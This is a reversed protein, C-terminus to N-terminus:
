KANSNLEEDEQYGLWEETVYTQNVLYEIADEMDERSNTGPFSMVCGIIPNGQRRADGEPFISIVGSPDNEDNKSVAPNLPYLLLLGRTKPRTARVSWGIPETYPMSANPNQQEVENRKQIAATIEKESFDIWEHAETLLQRNRIVYVADTSRKEAPTRNLYGIDLGAIQGPNNERVSSILAVTWEILEEKSNKLMIFAALNKADFTQLAPKEGTGHLTNLYDIITEASVNKWLYDKQETRKTVPGLTRVLSETAAFNHDIDSKAKSLRHTQELRGSFSVRVKTGYRLKGASTVTLGGPHTQVKLGYDRPTMGQAAMVDFEERLEESAATIHEYWGILEQTTYLRCLDAYGSRYGFWRGMQMLTDYMRTARLYYSVSLGELTLGRSLKDGGVAIVNSGEPHDYYNLADTATGNIEKVEIRKAEQVLYPEIDAWTLPTLKTDDPLRERIPAFKPTFEREWLERLEDRLTSTLSGDGYELRRRLTHLEALTLDKVANQVDVFRTVHILMSNHAKSQGRAARAACTLVFVRIAEKLSEPLAAPRLDKKHVGPLMMESDDVRRVIPLGAPTESDKAKLGFVEVPGIYNSPAPLNIIFSRPFLDEGEKETAGEPHIFINAFPTATYGVYAKKSFTKLLQRILSNIKTVDQAAAFKGGSVQEMQKTNISANDAEDDILLLPVNGAIIRDNKQAWKLLNKLISGNKKIVLVVPDNGIYLSVTNAAGQKFDGREDSNTLSHAAPIRGSPHMISGVGIRPSELRFVRDEKTDRGLFGEDLRLQTQSRLSNHIGAMVVILKYGADAAKCILGTYNATKGSQVQGVVMGRRDWEHPRKPDELMGMIRGTLDDLKALVLPPLKKEQELYLAYRDWFDWNIEARRQPLWDEHDKADTLIAGEGTFVNYLESLDRALTERSIGPCAAVAVAIAEDFEAQQPIAYENLITRALRMAREYLKDNPATM